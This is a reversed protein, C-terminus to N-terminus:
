TENEIQQNLQRIRELTISVKFISPSMSLIALPNHKKEREKILSHELEKLALPYIIDASVADFNGKLEFQIYQQITFLCPYTEVVRCKRGNFVTQSLLWEATNDIMEIKDIQNGVTVGYELVKNQFINSGKEKNPRLALLHLKKKRMYYGRCSDGRNAEYWLGRYPNGYYALLKEQNEYYKPKYDYYDTVLDFMQDTILPNGKRYFEDLEDIFKDSEECREPYKTFLVDIDGDLFEKLQGANLM